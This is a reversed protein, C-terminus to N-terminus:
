ARVRVLHPQLLVTLEALGEKAHRHGLEPPLAGDGEGRVGHLHEARAAASV